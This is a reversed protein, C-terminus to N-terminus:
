EHEEWLTRAPPPAPPAHSGDDATQQLLRHARAQVADDKLDAFARQQCHGNCGLMIRGSEHRYPKAGCSRCSLAVVDKRFLPVKGFDHDQSWERVITASIGDALMDRVLRDKIPEPLPGFARQM